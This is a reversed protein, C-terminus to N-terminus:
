AALLIYSTFTTQSFVPLFYLLVLFVKAPMLIVLIVLYFVECDFIHKFFTSPKNNSENEM